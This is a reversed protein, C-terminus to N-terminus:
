NNWVQSCMAKHNQKLSFKGVVELSREENEQELSFNWDCLSKLGRKEGFQFDWCVHLFVLFFVVFFLLFFFSFVALSFLFFFYCPSFSLLALLFLLFFLLSFIFSSSYPSLSSCGLLLLFLLFAFPFFFCHSLSFFLFPFLNTYPLFFFSPLSHFFLAEDLWHFGCRTRNSEHMPSHQMVGAGDSGFLDISFM